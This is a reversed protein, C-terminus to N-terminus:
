SANQYIVKPIEATNTLQTLSTELDKVVNELYVTQKEQFLYRTYMSTMADVDMVMKIKRIARLMRMQLEESLQEKKGIYWQKLLQM